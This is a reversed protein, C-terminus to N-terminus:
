GNRAEFEGMFAVLALVAELPCANYVSARIGGISRHGKLAKLGRADAEALFAKDLEANPSAWTVNM